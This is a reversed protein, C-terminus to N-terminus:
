SKQLTVILGMWNTFHARKIDMIALTHEERAYRPVVRMPLLFVRYM